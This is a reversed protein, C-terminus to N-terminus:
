LYDFSRTPLRRILPTCHKHRRTSERYNINNYMRIMRRTSATDASLEFILLLKAVQQIFIVIVNILM